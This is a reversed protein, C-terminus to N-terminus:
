ELYQNYELSARLDIVEECINKYIMWEVIDPRVEERRNPTLMPFLTLRHDPLHAIWNNSFVSDPLDPKLDEFVQVNVSLKHLQEVMQDFEAQAATTANNVQVQNQFLNSAATQSNYGFARPRIMLVLNPINSFSSVSM